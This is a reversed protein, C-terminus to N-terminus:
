LIASVPEYCRWAEPDAGYGKSFRAITGPHQQDCFLDAAAQFASCYKDVSELVWQDMEDRTAHRTTSPDVSGPCPILHGCNDVCSVSNDASGTTLLKSSDYCRWGKESQSENGRGHRFM